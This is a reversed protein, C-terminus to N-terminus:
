SGNAGGRGGSKSSLRVGGEVGERGFTGGRSCGGSSIDPGAWLRLEGFGQSDRYGVEGGDAVELGLSRM